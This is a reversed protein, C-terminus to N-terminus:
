TGKSAEAALTRSLLNGEGGSKSMEWDASDFRKQKARQKMAAAAGKPALGGYRAKAIADQEAVVADSSPAAGQQAAAPTKGEAALTRDLLNGQQGEGDSKSMMWDASDFRKMKERRKMAAAVGKPAQEGYKTRAMAEQEAMPEATGQVTRSLLSAGGSQEKQLIWDASDFKQGKERRMLAASPNKTLKGFKAKALSEQEAVLEDSTAAVRDLDDSLMRNMTPPSVVSDAPPAADAVNAEAALTM